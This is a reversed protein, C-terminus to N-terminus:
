STAIIQGSLDTPDATPMVSKLGQETLFIHHMATTQASAIDRRAISEYIEQHGRESQERRVHGENGDFLRYFAQNRSRLVSLLVQLAENGSLRGIEEHFKADLKAALVLDEEAAMDAVLKGLAAIEQDTARFAALSAAHGELVRRVEYLDLVTDIPALGLTLTLSGILEAPGLKSVYTGSGHRSEIVGLSGLMRVAERLSGRSVGLKECLEHEPPFKQGPKLDGSAILDRLGRVAKDLVSM